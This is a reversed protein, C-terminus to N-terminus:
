HNRRHLLMSCHLLCCSSPISSFLYRHRTQPLLQPFTERDKKRAHARPPAPIPLLYLVRSQASSPNSQRFHARLFLGVDEGLLYGWTAISSDGNYQREVN